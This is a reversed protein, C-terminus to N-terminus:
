YRLRPQGAQGLSPGLRGISNKLGAVVSSHGSISDTRVFASVFIAGTVIVADVLGVKQYGPPVLRSSM